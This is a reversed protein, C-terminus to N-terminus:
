RLTEKALENGLVPLGVQGTNQEVMDGISEVLRCVDLIASLDRSKGTLIYIRRNLVISGDLDVGSRYRRSVDFRAVSPNVDNILNEDRGKHGLIDNGGSFFGTDKISEQDSNLGSTQGIRELALSRECQKSWSITGKVLEPFACDFRQELVFLSKGVNEFIMNDIIGDNKRGLQFVAGGEGSDLSFINFHIGEPKPDELERVEILIDVKRTGINEGAVTDNM